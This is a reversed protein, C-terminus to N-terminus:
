TRYKAQYDPILLIANLVARPDDPVVGDSPPSG